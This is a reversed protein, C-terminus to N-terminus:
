QRSAQGMGQEAMAMADFTEYLSIKAGGLFVPCGKAIEIAQNVSDAKIVSYGSAPEGVPGESVKGDKTITKASPTFPNGPDTIAAKHKEMWVQWADMVKKTEAETQPMGGGSYLLLFTAM